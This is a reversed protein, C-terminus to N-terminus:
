YVVLVLVIKNTWIAINSRSLFVIYPYCLLTFQRPSIKEDEVVVRHYCLDLLFMLSSNLPSRPCSMGRPKKEKTQFCTVFYIPYSQMDDGLSLQYLLGFDKKLLVRLWSSHKKPAQAFISIWIVRYRFSIFLTKLSDQIKMEYKVLIGAFLYCRLSLAILNKAFFSKSIKRAIGFFPKPDKQGNSFIKGHELELLYRNKHNQPWLWSSHTRTAHSEMASFWLLNYGNGPLKKENIEEM